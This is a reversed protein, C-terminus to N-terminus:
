GQPAFAVMIAILIVSGPIMKAVFIATLHPLVFVFWLTGSPFM